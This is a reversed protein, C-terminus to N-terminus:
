AKDASMIAAMSYQGFPYFHEVGDWVHIKRSKTKGHVSIKVTKATRSIVTASFICEHDCASRTTYTQGAKFTNSM